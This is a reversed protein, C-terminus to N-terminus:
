YLLKLRLVDANARNYSGIFPAEDKKSLYIDVYMEVDKIANSLKKITLRM